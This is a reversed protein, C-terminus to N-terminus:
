KCVLCWRGKHVEAAPRKGRQVDDGNRNVQNFSVKVIDSFITQIDQTTDEDEDANPIM